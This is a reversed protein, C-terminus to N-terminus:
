KDAEQDIIEDPIDFNAYVHQVDDHEELAEMLALIKRATAEDTIKVTSSPLSTIEALNIPINKENLINKIEEFTEPTTTIEYMDGEAKLDEAGAEIVITFLQDEAVKEKDITILGKRQFQWAVSGTGSMNGGKKALINRIEATTRNKNDSMTDIMIAVGGPGYGEYSTEEYTIGPLEGTGRKIARQINDNPMNATKASSIAVRLRPNTVPDGGSTRTAVAIEKVIKSFLKGRKADAAGKKHKISAWKSHGSM